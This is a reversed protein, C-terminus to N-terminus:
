LAARGPDAFAVARIDQLVGGPLAAFADVGADGAGLPVPGAGGLLRRAGADEQPDEGDHHGRREGLAGVVAQGASRGRRVTRHARRLRRWLPGTVVGSSNSSRNRVVTPAKARASFVASLAAGSRGPPWS